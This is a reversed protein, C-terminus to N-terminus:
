DGGGDGGSDGGSDSSSSDSSESTADDTVEPDPSSLNTENEAIEDQLSTPLETMAIEEVPLAEANALDELPQNTEKWTANAFDTVPKSSSTYYYSTNNGDSSMMVYWYMDENTSSNYTDVTNNNGSIAIHVGHTKYVHIKHKKVRPRENCGTIFGIAICAIIIKYILHKM